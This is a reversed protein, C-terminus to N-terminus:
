RARGIRAVAPHSGVTTLRAGGLRDALEASTVERPAAVLASGDASATIAGGIAALGRATDDALGEAAHLVVAGLGEGSVATAVVLIPMPAPHDDRAVFPLRAIVKPADAAALARWWAGRSGALPVLGLDGRSAAVAAIVAAADPLPRAPVTFGFHFRASDQVLAPDASSDVHVCFPAQVHTFTSIITRWLGEVADLPLRGEHRELLARMMSAEREPRFASGSSATGKTAILRDIIRGREMLADHMVRDLRDIERRLAALAEAGAEDAM